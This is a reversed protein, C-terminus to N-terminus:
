RGYARRKLLDHVARQSGDPHVLDADPREHFSADAVHHYPVTRVLRNLRRSAGYKNLGNKVNIENRMYKRMTYSIEKTWLINEARGMTNELRRTLKLQKDWYIKNGFNGCLIRFM